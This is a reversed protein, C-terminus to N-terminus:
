CVKEEKIKKKENFVCYIAQIGIWILILSPVGISLYLYVKDNKLFYIILYLILALIGVIILFLQEKFFKNFPFVFKKQSQEEISIEKEEM